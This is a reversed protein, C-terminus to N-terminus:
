VEYRPYKEPAVEVVENAPLGLVERCTVLAVCFKNVIRSLFIAIMTIKCVEILVQHLFIM